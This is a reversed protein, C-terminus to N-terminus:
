DNKRWIIEGDRWVKHINWWNNINTTKFTMSSKFESVTNELTIGNVRVNFFTGVVYHSNKGMHVDKVITILIDKEDILRDGPMLEYIYFNKKKICSGCVIGELIKTKALNEIEENAKTLTESYDGSAYSYFKQHSFKHSKINGCEKCKAKITRSVKAYPM